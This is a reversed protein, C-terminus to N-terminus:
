EYDVRGDVERVPRGQNEIEYQDRGFRAIQPGQEDEEHCADCISEGDFTQHLEDVPVSKKCWDCAIMSVSKSIEGKMLRYARITGNILISPHAKIWNQIWTKFYYVLNDDWQGDIEPCGFQRLVTLEYKGICPKIALAYTYSEGPLDRAETWALAFVYHKSKLYGQAEFPDDLLHFLLPPLSSSGIKSVFEEFNM